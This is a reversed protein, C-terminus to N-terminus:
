ARRLARYVTDVAGQMISVTKASKPPSSQRAVDSQLFGSHRSLALYQERGQPQVERLAGQFRRGWGWEKRDSQGTEM